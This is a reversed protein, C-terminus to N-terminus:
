PRLGIPDSPSVTETVWEVGGLVDRADLGTDLTLAGVGLPMAWPRAALAASVLTSNHALRGSGALAAQDLLIDQFGTRAIVRQLLPLERIQARLASTESVWQPLSSIPRAGLPTALQAPVLREPNARIAPNGSRAALTEARSAVAARIGVRNARLGAQAIRGLSFTLVGLLGLGVHLLSGEGNFYLVVDAILAVIGAVVAVAGIIQGVIPIWGLFLSAIGAISAVIGAINSIAHLVPSLNEQWGDNLHDSGTIAQIADIAQQAARDRLDIAEQLDTRARTLATDASRVASRARNLASQRVAREHPDANALAIAARRVDVEAVDIASQASQAARLAAESEAQAQALQDAYAILANGTAEYRERARGIDDAVEGAKTRVEAVAQSVTANLDVLSRLSEAALSISGSIAVYNEGGVRVVSPDGPIPDGTALPFWNYSRTM